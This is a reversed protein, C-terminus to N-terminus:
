HAAHAVSRTHVCSRGLVHAASCTLPRACTRNFVHAASCVHVHAASCIHLRAPLLPPEPPRGGVVGESARMKRLRGGGAGRTVRLRPPRSPREAGRQALGGKIRKQRLHGIQAAGRQARKARVYLSGAGEGGGHGGGAFVAVASAVGVAVMAWTRVPLKDKLILAGGLAAWVVHLSFLLL